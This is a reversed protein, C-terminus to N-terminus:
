DANQSSDNRCHMVNHRYLVGVYPQSIQKESRYKTRACAVANCDTEMLCDVPLLTLMKIAGVGRKKELALIGSPQYQCSRAANWRDANPRDVALLSTTAVIEMLRRGDYGKRM